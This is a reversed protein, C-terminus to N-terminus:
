IYCVTETSSPCLISGDELQVPKNKVPGLLHGIRSDTGLKRAESWTAGDDESTMMMGWWTSPSPGVKYFLLLPGDNPQFLVPNWCPYRETPSQVGDAVEIPDSWAGGVRRSVWIGVDSHKEHTGGFWATVLGSATEAITSAHCQPTPTTITESIM